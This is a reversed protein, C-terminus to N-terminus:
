QRKTWVASKVKIHMGQLFNAGENSQCHQLLCDRCNGVYCDRYVLMQCADYMGHKNKAQWEPVIEHIFIWDCENYVQMTEDSAVM